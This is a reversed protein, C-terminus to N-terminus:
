AAGPATSLQAAPCLGVRAAGRAAGMWKCEELPLRWQKKAELKKTMALVLSCPEVCTDRGQKYQVGVRWICLISRSM